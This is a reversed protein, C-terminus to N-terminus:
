AKGSFKTVRFWYDIVQSREWYWALYPHRNCTCKTDARSCNPWNDGSLTLIITDWAPPPPRPAFQTLSTQGLDSWVMYPSTRKKCFRSPAIRISENNWSALVWRNIHMLPALEMVVNGAYRYNKMVLPLRHYTSWDHRYIAPLPLCEKYQFCYLHRYNAPLSGYEGTSVPVWKCDPLTTGTTPQPYFTADRIHMNVDKPWWGVKLDRSRELALIYMKKSADRRSFCSPKM